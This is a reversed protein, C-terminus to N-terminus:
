DLPNNRYDELTSVPTMPEGHIPCFIPEIEGSTANIIKPIRNQVELCGEVGCEFRWHTKRYQAVDSAVERDEEFLEQYATSLADLIEPMLGDVLTAILVPATTQVLMHPPNGPDREILIRDQTSIDAGMFDYISVDNVSVLALVAQIYVMNVKFEDPQRSRLGAYRVALLHDPSSLRRFTWKMDGINDSKLPLKSLGFSSLLRDLMPHKKPAQPLASSPVLRKTHAQILADAEPDEEAPRYGQPPPPLPESARQIRPTGPEDILESPDVPLERPIFAPVEREPDPQLPKNDEATPVYEQGAPLEEEPTQPVTARLSDDSNQPQNPLRPFPRNNM